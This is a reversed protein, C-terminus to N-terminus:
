GDRRASTAADYLVQTRWVMDDARFQEAVRERALRGISSRAADDDLFGRFASAIGERDGRRVVVGATGVAEPNGPADSVIPALGYSMAELLSFSLGERESPLVFIDAATLLQEVDSRQGLVRVADGGPERSLHEVEARLPGDGAILLLLDAGGRALELVAGAPMLPNKHAVLSGVYVAVLSSPAIGLAARAAARAAAGPLAVLEVGNHVVVVRGSVGAGVIDLVEAREADSVCITQTAARIVLRLNAKAVSRKMGATRRVLHLGHLTVISRRAAVSPLCIASAAEGHVHLLDYARAKRLVTFAARPLSRLAELPQPGSALYLREFRYGDMHALADVYTEGGGGPHPLVHLVTRILGSERGM